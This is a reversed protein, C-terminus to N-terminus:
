LRIDPFGSSSKSMNRQSRRLSGHAPRQPVQKPTQKSYLILWLEAIEHIWKMVHLSLPYLLVITFSPDFLVFTDLMVVATLRIACISVNKTFQVYHKPTLRSFLLYEHQICDWGQWLHPHNRQDKRKGWKITVRNSPDRFTRQSIGM